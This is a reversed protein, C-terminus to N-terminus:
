DVDQLIAPGVGVIDLRQARGVPCPHPQAAALRDAGREVDGVRDVLRGAGRRDEEARRELPAEAVDVGQRLLDLRALRMELRDALNHQVAVRVVAEEASGKSRLSGPKSGTSPRGSSATTATIPSPKAITAPRSAAM